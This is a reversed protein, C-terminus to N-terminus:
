EETVVDVESWIMSRCEMEEFPVENQSCALQELDSLGEGHGSEGVFLAWDV